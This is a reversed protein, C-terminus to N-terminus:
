GAPPPPMREFKALGPDLRDWGQGAATWLVFQSQFRSPDDLTGARVAILDPMQPFTLWVPTGCAACFCRTKVTGGDGVFEYKSPAGALQAATRPFALYSAHGTGSEVQCQRCQCDNQQFPEATIEYRLAGCSCGGTYPTTM